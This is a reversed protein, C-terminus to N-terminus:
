ALHSKENSLEIEVLPGFQESLEAAVDPRDAVVRVNVIGRKQDASWGLLGAGFSDQSGASTFYEHRIQDCIARLEMLSHPAQRARLREPFHLEKKLRRTHTDLSGAFTVSYGGDEELWFGGFADPCSEPFNAIRGLDEIVNRQREWTPERGDWDRVEV